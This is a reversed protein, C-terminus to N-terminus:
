KLKVDKKGYSNVQQAFLLAELTNLIYALNRPNLQSALSGIEVATKITTPENM